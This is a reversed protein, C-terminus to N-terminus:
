KLNYSIGNISIANIESVDVAIVSDEDYYCLSLDMTYKDDDGGANWSGLTVPIETGDKYIFKIDNREFDPNFSYEWCPKYEEPDFTIGLEAGISDAKLSYITVDFKENVANDPVDGVSYVNFDLQVTEGFKEATIELEGAESPAYTFELSWSLDLLEIKDLYAKEEEDLYYEVSSGHMGFEKSPDIPADNLEETPYFSMGNIEIKKGALSAQTRDFTVEINGAENIRTGCGGDGNSDFGGNLKVSEFLAFFGSEYMFDLNSLYDKVPKGDARAIEIVALLSNETGTVGKLNVVYDDDSVTWKIDSANGILQEGLEESQTKITGGFIENFNILGAAAATVVGLSLAAAAACITIVTRKISIKKRSEMEIKRETVSKVFSEDDTQLAVSSFAHKFVKNYDM